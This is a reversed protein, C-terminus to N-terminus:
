LSVFQLYCGACKISYLCKTFSYTYFKNGNTLIVHYCTYALGQEDTCPAFIKDEEGAEFEEGGYVNDFNNDYKSRDDESEDGNDDSFSAKDDNIVDNYDDQSDRTIEM